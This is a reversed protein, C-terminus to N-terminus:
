AIMLAVMTSVIVAAAITIANHKTRTLNGKGIMYCILIAGAALIRYLAFTTFYSPTVYYDLASLVLIAFSGILTATNTWANLLRLINDQIYQEKSMDM